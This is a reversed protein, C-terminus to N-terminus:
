SALRQNDRAAVLERALPILTRGYDIADALPDFGRILFTSIGLDHYDLLAAAVQEATGVLSTSNGGAGTVAALGTWLRKDLREGRAAAELLRQSGVNPPTHNDIKLGRNQRLEIARRRIDEARAWAAAETEALIPRLSMSFRVERRHKAAEGRVRTVLERVQEYTEGWHAYVDAQKGAVRIAADSAGGFYIPIHPKQVPKTESFAGNYRYYKGDHDFPAAGTWVKRVVELYEDTRAYREDKTLYDGDKQMEEDRGGTIIHVAVRGKTLQDLTALKRAAFTPAIFGPRHALLFGIKKSISAAHAVIAFADPGTSGQAVLVRDFGSAEHALTISQLYDLDIDTGTAPHIESVERTRIAGIFEISM